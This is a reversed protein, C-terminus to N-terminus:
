KAHFQAEFENNFREWQAVNADFKKNAEEILYTFYPKTILISEDKVPVEMKQTGGIEVQVRGDQINFIGGRKLGAKTKVKLLANASEISDCSVHLILSDMKLWVKKYDTNELVKWVEEETVKRHWKGVFTCDEKKRSPLDLLLIRGYCSSSTAFEPVANIVSLYQLVPEDAKGDKIAEKLKSLLKERTSSWM